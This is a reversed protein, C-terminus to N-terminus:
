LANDLYMKRWLIGRKELYYRFIIQYVGSLIVYCNVCGTM